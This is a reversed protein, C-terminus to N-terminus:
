MCPCTEKLRQSDILFNSYFFTSLTKGDVLLEATSSVPGAVIKYDAEDSLQARSILLKHVLGESSIQCNDAPTVPKGDKYWTVPTERNVECTFEVTDSETCQQPQLEKVIEM